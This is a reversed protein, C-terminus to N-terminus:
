KEGEGSSKPKPDTDKSKGEDKYGDGLRDLFRSVGKRYRPPIRARTIADTREIEGAQRAEMFDVTSEGKLQSGKVFQQGVISGGRGEKIKAKKDVTSTQADDNRDRNGQGRGRGAPGDQGPRNCHPCPAGDKRFGTGDCHKCALEDEQSDLEELDQQAQDLESLQSELENLTQELQELESLTEGAEGLQQQAQQMDGKEMAKAAQGMKQGMKQCQKCAQQQQQMKQLMQKLQEESFGKDKLRQSLEEALKKLQEPDKKALANLVREIEEKNLGANQLEQRSQRDQGAEQLKKALEQMQQKMKELQGPDVQGSKARRALEEQLKKVSKEAAEFDGAALNQMLEALESKPDSPQGLRRLRKKTERLSQFREADAKQKLADQLRSIQKVAELRSFDPDSRDRDQFPDDLRKLEDEMQLDPNQQAIDQMVAVPRSLIARVQQQRALRAQKEAAAEARNLLDFHPLLSTALGLALVICGWNLSRAWRLPLLKRPTLGAAAREADVEVASEFPDKVGAGLALSTSLRERLNASRDLTAAADLAPERTLIMWIVSGVLAVGLGVVAVTNMPWHLGVLRDALVVLAWAGTTLTLCWGFQSLWRNLWLRRQARHVQRQLQMM